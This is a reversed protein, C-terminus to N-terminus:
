ERRTPNKAAEIVLDISYDESEGSEVGGELEARLRAVRAERAELMRLAARVVESASNFRGSAVEDAIFSEFHPGLSFSTNRSM